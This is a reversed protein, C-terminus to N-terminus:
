YLTYGSPWVERDLAQILTVQGSRPEVKFYAKSGRDYLIDYWVEDREPDTGNLTYVQSGATCM